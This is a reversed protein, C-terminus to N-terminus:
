GFSCWVPQLRQFPVEKPAYTIFNDEIIRDDDTPWESALVFWPQRNRGDEMDIVLVHGTKYWSSMLYYM